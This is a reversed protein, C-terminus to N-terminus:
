SYIRNEYTKGSRAADAVGSSRRRHFNADKKNEQIPESQPTILPKVEVQIEEEKVINCTGSEKENSSDM